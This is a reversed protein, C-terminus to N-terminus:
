QKIFKGIINRSPIQFIYMGSSLTEINIESKKETLNGNSVIRGYIDIIQYNDNLSEELNVTLHNFAPNPSLLIQTKSFQTTSLPTNNYRAVLLKEDNYGVAIIKNDSQIAIKRIASSNGFVSIIKGQNGFNPVLEGEETLSLMACRIEGSPLQSLGALIYDGNLDQAMSSCFSRTSGEFDIHKQTNPILIGNTMIRHFDFGISIGVRSEGGIVWEDPKPLLSYSREVINSGTNYHLVGDESFTTDMTGDINLQCMWHKYNEAPASYNVSFGVAVIKGLPLISLDRVSIGLQADTPEVLIIRSGIPGFTLDPNGNQDFRGIIAREVASNPILGGVVINGTNADIKLTTIEANNYYPFGDAVIGSDGFSQDLEGNQELRIISARYALNTLAKTALIIKGDNQLSMARMSCFSGLIQTFIGGNGFTPDLNGDVTLRMCFISGLEPTDAVNYGAVLIKGDPLIKVEAARSKADFLLQVSGSEGFSQDLFDINQSIGTYCFLVGILIFRFNKM